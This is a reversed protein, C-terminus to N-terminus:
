KTYNIVKDGENLGSIIEIEGNSGKLGVVVEKEEEKKNANLIHVFKKGNREFISRQPISLADQREATAITINATLGSRIRSDTQDFQLTTKYTSVGDITTEAPDIKIVHTGFYIDGGYADLTVSAENGITIKAMDVEPIFAEIKYNNSGITVLSTNAGVIEGVKADQKTVLGKIPSFIYTKALVAEANKVNAEASQIDALAGTLVDATAPARTLNLDNQATEVVIKQTTITRATETINTLATNINTRATNLADKDTALTSDSLNLATDLAQSTKILFDNISLLYKKANALASENYVPTDFNGQTLVKFSGLAQEADFRESEADTKLQQNGVAFNLKPSPSSPNSFLIDAQRHVANDAKNFADLVINIVSSYDTALDALAKALGTEKLSIEEARGGAKLDNYHAHKSVLKAQADELSSVEVGNELVMLLEGQKVKDNVEVNIMKVKGTKEFALLVSEIPKVTGTATVEETILGRKVEILSVPKSKSRSIYVFLGIIIMVAILVVYTIKKKFIAM